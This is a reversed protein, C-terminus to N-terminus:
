KSKEVLQLMQQFIAFYEPALGESKGKSAPKFRDEIILSSVIKQRAIEDDGAALGASLRLYINSVEQQNREIIKETSVYLRLFFAALVQVFLFLTFRPAYETFFGGDPDIAPMLQPFFIVVCLFIVGGASIAMGASLNGSSRYGLRKNEDLIKNKANLLPTKWDVEDTQYVEDLEFEETSGIKNPITYSLELGLFRLSARAAKDDQRDRKQAALEKDSSVSVRFYNRLLPFLGAVLGAVVGLTLSLVRSLNEFKIDFFSVDDGFRFAFFFSAVVVLTTILFVSFIFVLRNKVRQAEVEALLKNVELQAEHRAAIREM